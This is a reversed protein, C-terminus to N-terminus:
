KGQSNTLEYFREIFLEKAQNPLLPEIKFDFPKKDSKWNSAAPAMLDRMETILAREDAEKVDKPEYLELGFKRYVMTQLNAEVKRYFDFEKLKKIPTPLDGLSLGESADHLLGHLAYEPNCNESVIVSHQAVSYFSKVHGNFRCVNSLAHAIDEISIDNPNPDLPFFQKGSYTTIWTNSM